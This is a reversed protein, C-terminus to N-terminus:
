FTGLLKYLFFTGIIIEIPSDPTVDLILHIRLTWQQAFLM